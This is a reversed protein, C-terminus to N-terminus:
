AVSGAYTLSARNDWINDYNPNGDAWAFEDDGDSNTFEKRVQWIAASKSAPTEKTLGYYTVGATTTSDIISVCAEADEHDITITM